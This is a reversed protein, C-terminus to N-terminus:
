VSYEYVTISLCQTQCENCVVSRGDAISTTQCDSESCEYEASGWPWWVVGINTVKAKLCDIVHDLEDDQKGMVMLAIVSTTM